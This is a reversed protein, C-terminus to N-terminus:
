TRGSARWANLTAARTTAACCESSVDIDCPRRAATHDHAASTAGLASSLAPRRLRLKHQHPASQPAAGGPSQPPLQQCTTAFLLTWRMYPLEDQIDVCMIMIIPPTELDNQSVLGGGGDVVLELRRPGPTTPLAKQEPALIGM